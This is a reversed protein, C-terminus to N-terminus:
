DNNKEEDPNLECRLQQRQKALEEKSTGIHFFGMYPNAKDFRKLWRELQVIRARTRDM